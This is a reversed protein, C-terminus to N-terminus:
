GWKKKISLLIIYANGDQNGDYINDIKDKVDSFQLDIGGSYGTWFEYTGSIQYCTETLDQKSFSAASVPNLLDPSNPSFEGKSRTHTVSGSINLKDVPIYNLSASYVHVNDKMAVGNDVASGYVIDQDIKYQMFAYSATLSLNPMLHFIANGLVNETRTKRDKANSTSAYVLNEREGKAISYNVLLNVRPSPIWSVSTNWKDSNDPETNYSPVDTTRHTFETRFDVGRILRLDASVSLGNKKTSDELLWASANKRDDNEYFYKAKLIVGPEPNYRGTLFLTDTKKSVSSKVKGPFITVIGNSDTISSTGPNDVDMDIHSYRLFFSLRTLPTWQLSGDGRFINASAGSAENNRDKISFTASAVLRENYNSHVKIVNSSSRIESLQNHPILNPSILSNDFMVEGDKAEFSKEVHSLDVEAHGVHSNVGIVYTLTELHVDRSKTTRANISFPQFIEILSRQQYQGDKDVFLGRVYLHAPFNPYKLRLMFNNIGTKLGYKKDRDNINIEYSGSGPDPDNLEINDTNHFFTTNSLRGILLDKYAYNVDGQYDKRSHLDFDLHMRHPFKFMRYEGGAIVYDHIYEYESPNGSDGQHTFRQGLYLSAETKIDPFKYAAHEQESSIGLEKLLSEDENQARAIGLDLGLTLLLLYLIKKMM